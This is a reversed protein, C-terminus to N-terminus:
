IELLRIHIGQSDTEDYQEIEFMLSTKFTVKHFFYNYTIKNSDTNNSININKAKLIEDFSTTLSSDYYNIPTNM